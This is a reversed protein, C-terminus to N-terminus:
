IAPAACFLLGTLWNAAVLEDHEALHCAPRGPAEGDSAQMLYNRLRMAMTAAPTDHPFLTLVEGEPGVLFTLSSHDVLYDEPGSAWDPVVKLRHLRFSRAVKSIQQESGGLGVFRDGFQMVYAKLVDPTDRKPDVTVFVPVVGKAREGLQELAAAMEQLSAPCIDPCYTYGFYILLYRGRYDRDTRAIGDHDVLEFPGGFLKGFPVPPAATDPAADRAQAAGLALAAVTAVAAMTKCVTM